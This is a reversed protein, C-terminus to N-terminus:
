QLVTNREIGGTDYDRLHAKMADMFNKSDEAPLSLKYQCRKFQEKGQSMHTTTLLRSEVGCRGAETYRDNLRICDVRRM